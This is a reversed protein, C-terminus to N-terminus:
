WWQFHILETKSVKQSFNYVLLSMFNTINRSQFHRSFFSFFFLRNKFNKKVFKTLLTLDLFSILIPQTTKSFFFYFSVFRYYPRGNSGSSRMLLPFFCYCSTRGNFISSRFLYFFSFYLWIYLLAVVCTLIQIVYFFDQVLILRSAKQRRISMLTSNIHSTLFIYVYKVM